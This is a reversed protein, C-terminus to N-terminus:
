INTIRTDAITEAFGAGFVEVPTRFGPQHQGHLVRHAAHAAALATFSYGNVTELRSQATQDDGLVQAIAHYRHAARQEASPGDPLQQIEGSRLAEGSAYVYTDINAIGTSRWVTILDPLTVPACPVPGFGFDFVEVAAPDAATLTGAVRHLTDTTLNESASRASGRSMAGAVHLAIRISRPHDVHAAAHAALCGLMAVSGGSGPLLMVGAATADADYAEALRYSNLEAAVDLYHVGASIAAEMLPQATRLYPGACNLLVTVDALAAGVAATDTVDFVAYRCDLRTALAQLKAANRGALIPKLGLDVIHEAVMTGTYGTAGYLLLTEM